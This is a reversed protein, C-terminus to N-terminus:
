ADKRVEEYTDRAVKEYEFRIDFEEEIEACQEIYYRYLGYLGITLGILIWILM